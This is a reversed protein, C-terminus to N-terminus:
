AHPICTALTKLGFRNTMIPDSADATSGSPRWEVYAKAYEKRMNDEAKLCADLNDFTLKTEVPYTGFALVLLMWKMALDGEVALPLGYILRISRKLFM